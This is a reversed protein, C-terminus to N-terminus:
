QSSMQSLSPALIMVAILNDAIQLAVRVNVKQHDDGEKDIKM